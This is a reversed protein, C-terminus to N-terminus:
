HGFHTLIREKVHRARIASPVHPAGKLASICGLQPPNVVVVAVLVPCKLTSSRSRMRHLRPRHRLHPPRIRQCTGKMDRHPLCSAYRPLKEIVAGLTWVKADEQTIIPVCMTQVAPIMIKAPIRSEWAVAATSDIGPAQNAPLPQGRPRGRNCSGCSPEAEFSIKVLNM